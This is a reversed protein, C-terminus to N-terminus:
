TNLLCCLDFFIHPNRQFQETAFIWCERRQFGYKCNRIARMCMIPMHHHGPDRVKTCEYYMYESEPLYGVHRCVVSAAPNAWQDGCIYGWENNHCFQVVGSSDKNGGVLRLGGESCGILLM